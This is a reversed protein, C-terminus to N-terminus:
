VPLSNKNQECKAKKKKIGRKRRRRTAQTIPHGELFIVTNVPNVSDGLFTVEKTKLHVLAQQGELTMPIHKKTKQTHVIKVGGQLLCSQFQVDIEAKQSSIKNDSTAVIVNGFFIIKKFQSYQVTSQKPPKTHFKQYSVNKTKQPPSHKKTDFIIELKDSKIISDDAFVVKVEDQYSFSFINKHSELPRCVAKKSTIVVKSLPHPPHSIMKCFCSVSCLILIFSFFIKRISYPM